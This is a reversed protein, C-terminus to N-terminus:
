AGVEYVRKPKPLKRVEELYVTEAAVTQGVGAVLLEELYEGETLLDRRYAETLAAVRKTTFAARDKVATTRTLRTRKIVVIQRLLALESETHGLSRLASELESVTMSGEVTETILTSRLAKLEDITPRRALVQTLLPLDEPNYGLQKLMKSIEAPPMGVVDTIMGIERVSPNRWQSNYHAQIYQDSWGEYTHIEWWKDKDIQDHWLLEDADQHGPVRSRFTMRAWLRTPYEFMEACVTGWYADILAGWGLAKYVLAITSEQLVTKVPHAINISTVVLGVGFMIAGVVGLAALAAEPELPGGHPIMKVIANFVTSMASSIMDVIKQFFDKLADWLPGLIKDKLWDWITSFGKVLGDWIAGLARKLVDAIGGLADMFFSGLGELAGGITGTITKAVAELQKLVVDIMAGLVKGLAGIADGLIKWISELAKMILDIWAKVVKALADIIFQGVDKIWDWFKKFWGEIADLPWPWKDYQEV